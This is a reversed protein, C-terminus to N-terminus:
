PKTLVILRHAGDRTVRVLLRAGAPAQRYARVVAAGSPADVAAVATIVDGDRLGASAAASRPAVSEVRAGTGPLTRLQLGLDAGDALDEPTRPVPTLIVSARTGGRVRDVVVPAGPTLRTMAAAYADPSDISVGGISVIVDAVALQKDSPGGARVHTVIVGDRAGTVSRLPGDLAQVELGLDAARLSGGRALREAEEQLLAAPIVLVGADAPLGLGVLEGGLTFVAANGAITQQIGSLRLISSSWRLDQVRDARGFYLPRVAPGQPMVEVVALYGPGTGVADPTAVRPVSGPTGAVSFLAMGSGKNWAVLREASPV